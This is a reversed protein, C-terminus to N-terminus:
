LRKLPQTAVNASPLSQFTELPSKLPKILSHLALLAKNNPLASILTTTEHTTTITTSAEILKTFSTTMSATTTTQTTQTVEHAVEYATNDTVDENDENDLYHPTPSSPQLPHYQKDFNIAIRFVQDTHAHIYMLALPPVPGPGEGAQLAASVACQSANCRKQLPIKGTSM